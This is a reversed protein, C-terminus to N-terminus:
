KGGGAVEKNLGGRTRVAILVVADHGTERNGITNMQWGIDESCGSDDELVLWTVDIGQQAEGSAERMVSSIWGGRPGVSRWEQRCRGVWRASSKGESIMSRSCREEKLTMPIDREEWGWPRFKSDVAQSTRGVTGRITGDLRLQFTMEESFVAQARRLARTGERAHCVIEKM